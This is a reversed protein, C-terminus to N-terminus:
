EPMTPERTGGGAPTPPEEQWKELTRTNVENAAYHWIKGDKMRIDSGGNDFGGNETLRIGYGAGIRLFNKGDKTRFELMEDADVVVTRSRTRLARNENELCVHNETDADDKRNSATYMMVDGPKQKRPRYDRDDTATIVGHACEGGVFLVIAKCKPLPVTSLGYEQMREVGERCEGEFLTIKAAQVPNDDTVSEIVARRILLIIRNRLPALLRSLLGSQRSGMLDGILRKDKGNM